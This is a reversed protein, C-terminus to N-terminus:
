TPSEITLYAPGISEILRARYSNRDLIWLETWYVQYSSIEIKTVCGNVLKAEKGDTSQITPFRTNLQQPPFVRPKRCAHRNMMM